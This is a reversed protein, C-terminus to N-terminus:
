WASLRRASIAASSRSRLRASRVPAGNQTASISRSWKLSTLSVKPWAAPSATSRAKASVTCSVMRM